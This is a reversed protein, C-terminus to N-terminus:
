TVMRNAGFLIPVSPKPQAIKQSVLLSDTAVRADHLGLYVRKYEANLQPESVYDRGAPRCVVSGSRHGERMSQPVCQRDRHQAADGGVIQIRAARTPDDLPLCTSYLHLNDTHPASIM